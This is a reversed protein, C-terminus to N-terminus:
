TKQTSFRAITHTDRTKVIITFHRHRERSFSRPPEGRALM